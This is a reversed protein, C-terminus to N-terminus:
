AALRAPPEVAAPEWDQDADEDASNIATNPRLWTLLAPLVVLSSFACCTV